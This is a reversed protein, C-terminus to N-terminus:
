LGTLGLRWDEGAWGNSALWYGEYPFFAAELPESCGKPLEQLSGEEVLQVDYGYRPGDWIQEPCLVCPDDPDTNGGYMEFRTLQALVDPGACWATAEVGWAGGEGLRDGAVAFARPGVLGVTGFAAFGTGTTDGYLNAGGGVLFTDEPCHLWLNPHSHVDQPLWLRRVQVLCDAISEDVCLASTQLEVPSAHPPAAPPRVFRGVWSTGALDPGSQQILLWPLGDGLIAVNGGIVVQGPACSATLELGDPGPVGLVSV